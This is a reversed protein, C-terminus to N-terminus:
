KTSRINNYEMNLSELSKLNNLMSFNREEQTSLWYKNNKKFMNSFNNGENIITKKIKSNVFSEIIRQGSRGYFFPKFSYFDNENFFLDIKNMYDKNVGFKCTIKTERQIGSIEFFEKSPYGFNKVSIIRFKTKGYLDNVLSILYSGIDFLNTSYNTYKTRFTNIPMKPILFFINIQNIKKNKQFWIKLFKKYISSYKYMFGEVFFLNNKKALQTIKKLSNVSITVPKEIFLNFGSKLVKLAQTSHIDPPTCLIFITKKPVNNLADELNKYQYFNKNIKKKKSVVGVIKSGIQL